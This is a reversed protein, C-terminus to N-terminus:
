EDAARLAQTLYKGIQHNEQGAKSLVDLGKKFEQRAKMIENKRKFLSGLKYQAYATVTANESHDIINKYLAEAEDYHELIVKNDAAKLDSSFDQAAVVGQGFFLLGVSLSLIILNKSQRNSKNWM